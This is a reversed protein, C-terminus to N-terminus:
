HGKILLPFDVKLKHAILSYPYMTSPPPGIPTGPDLQGFSHTHAGHTGCGNHRSYVNLPSSSPHELNPFVSNHSIHGQLSPIVKIMSSSLELVVLM